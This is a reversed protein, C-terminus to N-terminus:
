LGDDNKGPTKNQQRQSSPVSVKRQEYPTDNPQYVDEKAISYPEKVAYRTLPAGGCYTWKKQMFYYLDFLIYLEVGM